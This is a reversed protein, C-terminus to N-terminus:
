NNTETNINDNVVERFVAVIQRGVVERKVVQVSVATSFPEELNNSYCWGVFEYGELAVTARLTVLDDEAPVEGFADGLVSAIGGITSSVSVGKVTDEVEKLFSYNRESMILYINIYTNEELYDAYIQTINSIMANSEKGVLWDFVLAFDFGSLQKEYSDVEFFTNNDFSIQTVYHGAEPLIAFVASNKDADFSTIIDANTTTGSITFKLLNGWVAYLNVVENNVTALDVVDQQDTYVVVGGSATAWGLFTYGVKSYINASLTQVSGFVHASNLMNGSTHGNGNYKVYYNASNWIAYLNIVSGHMNSLNFVTVGNAFAVESSNPDYGWGGFVYGARTFANNTLKASADFQITLDSMVGEGGNANFRVIYNATVWKAYLTTAGGTLPYNIAGQGSALYYQVGGGNIATYYGDFAYGPKLPIFINPLSNGLYCTISDVNTNNQNDINVSVPTTLFALASLNLHFAPRVAYSRHVGGTGINAGSAYLIFAGDTLNNNDASRLWAYTVSNSRENQNTGWIGTHNDDYGIESRSPLWITDNKWVDNYGEGYRAFNYTSSNNYFGSNSIDNSWNENSLMYNTGNYNSTQGSEQWSVYAPTVIYPTIIGNVFKKFNSGSGKEYTGTVATPNEENSTIQLYDGGNNLTVARIYSTGYMGAAYGLSNNIGVYSASDGFTSRISADSLWLTAIIDGNADGYKKYSSRSVFEVTWQFGGLTVVLSKGVEKNYTYNRIQSAKIGKIANPSADINSTITDITGSASNSLMKILTTANSVNLDNGNWLEGIVYANDSIPYTSSFGEVNKGLSVGM